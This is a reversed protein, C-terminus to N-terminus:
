EAALARQSSQPGHAGDVENGLEPQLKNRPPTRVDWVIGFVELCRIIYYSVDIEWWFFVQNASSQYHHHNNHWGEGLTMLAVWWIIRCQVPTAYRRRGFLHCLSNVAFTSHYLLVTSFFFGVILGSWACLFSFVADPQEAMGFWFALSPGFGGVVWCCLALLLGPAWHLANMWRLERFRSFDRITSWNTEDYQTSIVWGIHSWWVGRKIPSHPDQDTDSYKHHGRHNAAWWLPGKQLAMCGLWALIFQFWRSTKYARHSFYRHYGATLGFMRGLYCIVFLLLAVPPTGTFWVAACGLHLSVFGVLGLWNTSFPRANAPPRLTDAHPGACSTDITSM